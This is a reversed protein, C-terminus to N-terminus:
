FNTVYNDRYAWKRQVEARVQRLKVLDWTIAKNVTQDVCDGEDEDRNWGEMGVTEEDEERARGEMEAISVM